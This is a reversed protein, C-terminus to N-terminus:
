GPEDILFSPLRHGTLFSDLRENVLQRSRSLFDKLSDLSQVFPRQGPLWPIAAPGDLLCQSVQGASLTRMPLHGLGDSGSLGHVRGIEVQIGPVGGPYGLSALSGNVLYHLFHSCLPLSGQASQLIQLIFGKVKLAEMWDQAFGGHELHKPNYRDVLPPVQIVDSLQQLFLSFSLPLSFAM